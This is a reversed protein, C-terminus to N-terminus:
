KNSNKEDIYDIIYAGGLVTTLVCGIFWILALLFRAFWDWSMMNFDAAIFSAIMYLVMGIAIWSGVVLRMVNSPSIM